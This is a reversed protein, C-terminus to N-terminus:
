NVGDSKDTSNELTYGYNALILPTGNNLPLQGNLNTVVGNCDVTIRTTQYAGNALGWVFGIAFMLFIVADIVKFVTREEKRIIQALKLAKDDSREISILHENMLERQSTRLTKPKNM